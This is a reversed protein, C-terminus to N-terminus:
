IEPTGAALACSLRKAVAGVCVSFERRNPVFRFGVGLHEETAAFVATVFRKAITRVVTKLRMERDRKGRQQAPFERCCISETGHFTALLASGHAKRPDRAGAGKRCTLSERRRKAVINVVRLAFTFDMYRDPLSSKPPKSSGRRVSGSGM